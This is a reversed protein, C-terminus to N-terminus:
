SQRSIQLRSNFYMEFEDVLRREPIELNDFSDAKFLAIDAILHRQLKEDLSIDCPNELEDLFVSLQRLAAAQLKQEFDTLLPPACRLTESFYQFLIAQVPLHLVMGMLQIYRLADKEFEGSCLAAEKDLMTQLSSWDDKLKDQIEKRAIKPDHDHAAIWFNQMFAFPRVIIYDNITQYATSIYHSPSPHKSVAEFFRDVVEVHNPFSQDESAAHIIALNLDKHLQMIENSFAKKKMRWANRANEFSIEGPQLTMAADQKRKYLAQFLPMQDLRHPYHPILSEGLAWGTYQFPTPFATQLSHLILQFSGPLPTSLQQLGVNRQFTGRIEVICGPLLTIKLSLNATGEQPDVVTDIPSEKIEHLMESMSKLKFGHQRLLTHAKMRLLDAEQQSLPSAIVDTLRVATFGLQEERQSNDKVNHQFALNIKKSIDTGANDKQSIMLTASHSKPLDIRNAHLEEDVSLGAYSTLFKSLRNGWSTPSKRAQEIIGNYRNIAALTNAALEQEEPSGAQLREIVLHNRKIEDIAKLVTDQVAMKNKHYKSRAKRSFLAALFYRAISPTNLHANKTQVLQGDHVALDAVHVIPSYENKKAFQELNAIAAQLSATVGQVHKMSKLKTIKEM